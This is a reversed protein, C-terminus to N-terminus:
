GPQCLLAEGNAGDRAVTHEHGGLSRGGLHLLREVGAEAVVHDVALGDAKSVARQRHRGGYRARHRAHDADVLIEGGIPECLLSL